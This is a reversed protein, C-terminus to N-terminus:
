CAPSGCGGRRTSPAAPTASSSRGACRCRRCRRAVVLGEEGQAAGRVARRRPGPQAGVPGARGDRLQRPVGAQGVRSPAVHMWGRSLEYTAVMTDDALFAGDAVTTMKPLAIVTSAEVDRGVKAGLLRLWAATFQSAYLPFLGTRAMGMLRETTWVELGMPSHVPHFGAAMGIGLLRVGAVVLLAYTLLYAVTAPAVM